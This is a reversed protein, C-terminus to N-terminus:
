LEERRTGHDPRAAECGHMCKGDVYTELVQAGSFSNWERQETFKHSLVVFDARAGVRRTMGCVCTCVHDDEQVDARGCLQELDPLMCLAM